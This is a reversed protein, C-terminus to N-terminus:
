HLMSFGSWRSTSWRPKSTGYGPTRLNLEGRGLSYEGSGSADWLVPPSSRRGRSGGIGAVIVIPYQLGKSAHITTIRVADEDPDTLLPEGSAGQEEAQRRIWDLFENIGGGGAAVFARCQDTVYRVRRWSERYNRSWTSKHLLRTTSVIHEILGTPGRWWLTERFDNLSRLAEVVPNNNPLGDFQKTSPQWATSKRGSAIFYDVLDRDSCGFAASKLAAVVAIDDSPDAIAALVSLLDRVEQSGLILSRAEIRYPIEAADLAAEISDISSRARVLIAIDKYTLPRGRGVGDPVSSDRTDVTWAEDCIKRIAAVASAADLERLEDAFVDSPGGTLYVRAGGDPHKGTRSSDLAVYSPQGEGAVMIKAFVTNVWEIISSHSRFNMTLNVSKPGGGFSTKAKIYTAIDARRFRYISQKPDGVFFVRGDDAPLEHWSTGETITEAPTALLACIEAQLPDTDQFEDVLIHTYQNRLQARVDHERRLLDCAHVLLDHFELRGEIRRQMAGDLTFKGVLAVLTTLVAMRLPDLIESLLNNANEFLALVEQKGESGGWAGPQGVKRPSLTEQSQEFALLDILDDGEAGDLADRFPIVKLIRKYLRDEPCNCRDAAEILQNLAGVLKTSDVTPLELPIKVESLRDWNDHLSEALTRLNPTTLGLLLAARLIPITDDSEFLDDLFTSWREGFRISAEIEDAIQFGPPLGAQLPFANLISQAFSHITVITAGDIGELGAELNKTLESNSVGLRKALETSVEPDLSEEVKSRVRARLEAAAANTFTIIALTDIKARGSALLAIARSVLSETKGTGAGAEVILTSDLDTEVTSRAAHDPLSDSM